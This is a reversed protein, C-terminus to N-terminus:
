AFRHAQQLAAHIDDAQLYPYDELIVQQPTGESLLSLIAGVTVRTGRICQKGGMVGPDAVIRESLEM